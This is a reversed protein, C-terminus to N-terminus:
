FAIGQACFGNICKNSMDCCDAATVCKEQLMSCSNNPAASACILAGGDGAPECFGNCCEDGTMCSMGNAKCPNLVWFGRSNGALLEQAPIYFGPHSPDTGPKANLDIAAVWLKKTTANALTSDDYDRPDSMWPTPRRSTAM